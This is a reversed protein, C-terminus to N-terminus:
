HVLVGFALAWVAANLARPANATYTLLSSCLRIDATLLMLMVKSSLEALCFAFRPLGLAEQSSSGLHRFGLGQVM